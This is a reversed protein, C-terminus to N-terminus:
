SPFPVVAASVSGEGWGALSFCWWGRCCRSVCISWLKGKTLEGEVVDRIQPDAIKLFSRIYTAYDSVIRSHTHFVNM